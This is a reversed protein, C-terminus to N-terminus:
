RAFRSAAMLEVLADVEDSATAFPDLLRVSAETVGESGPLDHGTFGIWDVTYGLGAAQAAAILRSRLAARTDPPPQERALAVEAPTSLRRVAGRAELRTFLGDPGLQHFALDVAALRPDDTGLGHRDRYEALLRRKAAWEVTDAVADPNDAALADLVRVWEGVLAETPTGPERGLGRIVDPTVTPPHEAGVREERELGQDVEPLVSSRPEPGAQDAVAEAFGRQVELATITGGTRRELVAHPNRAVVPLAGVPDALELQEFRQGCEVLTIVAMTTALRLWTSAESLNSDGALVHLRRFRSPDALPEDRSNVLPRARTTTASFGDHVHDARQSLLFGDASLRGNGCVVQRTVLFSTLAAALAAPDTTRSVLYNEHSGYSNGYSDTNNRFLRLRCPSGAQAAATEARDALSLLLEDGARSAVVVEFPTRCEPTAYEPHAGVDLYLRGGGALFASSARYEQELPRFLLQAAESSSLRGTASRGLLGYETEVGLIRQM